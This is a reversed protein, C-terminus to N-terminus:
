AHFGLRGLLAHTLDGHPDNNVRRSLSGSIRYILHADILTWDLSWDHGEAAAAILDRTRSEAEIRESADLSPDHSRYTWASRLLQSLDAELGTDLTSAEWDILVSRGFTDEGQHDAPWLLNGVHPDGHCWVLPGAARRRHAETIIRWANMTCELLDKAHPSRCEAHMTMARDHLWPDENRAVSGPPAPIAALAAVYNVAVTMQDVLPPPETAPHYTWATAVAPAQTAGEVLAVGVPFPNACLPLAVPIGHTAAWQSAALETVAREYAGEARMVKVFVHEYDTLTLNLTAPGGVLMQLPGCEVGQATLADGVASFATPALEARLEPITAFVPPSM